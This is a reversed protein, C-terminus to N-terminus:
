TTRLKRYAYRVKKEYICTRMAHRNKIMPRTENTSEQARKNVADVLSESTKTDGKMEKSQLKVEEVARCIQIAQELSSDPERLLREQM